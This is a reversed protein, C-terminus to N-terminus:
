ELTANISMSHMFAFEVEEPLIIHRTKSHHHCAMKVQTKKHDQAYEKVTRDQPMTDVSLVANELIKEEAVKKILDGNYWLAQPIIDNSLIFAGFTVVVSIFLILVLKM